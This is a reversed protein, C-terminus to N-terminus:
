AAVEERGPWGPHNRRRLIRVVGVAVFLLPIGVLDGWKLLGRTVSSQFVLEPPTRDKSRISILSEDQTLWDVANAVFVLNQPNNQVFDQRLFGADRVVVLRGPGKGSATGAGPNAGTPPGGDVVAAVVQVGQSGPAPRIDEQPAVSGGVPEIGGSATTQLLPSARTTDQIQLAGPWALSLGQLQRTILSKGAPGVVPWFPYNKVVSFVGQQGLNVRENSRLDYVVGELLKVGRGALYPGLGTSVPQTIPMRPSLRNSPLLLLGSGGADLYAELAHLASDGLTETPGALIVASLSDPSLVPAAASDTGLAVTNVDYRKSLEQELPGYSGPGRAGFGTLFAVHPKSKRTLGAIASTLHYELDATSQIVPITQHQGAYMVALGLWGRKVQFEDNRVVNFQIPRVGLSQAQDAEPGKDGPHVVQVHVHGDSASRYDALLDQVDRRTLDVESPLSSSVFFKITVVDDLGGLISRTGKSLTFLHNRTLDLRGHIHGGLLNLAVVGVVLAATGTRLRRFAGRGRSLRERAVAWYALALFVGAATVFYLVDRLDIVGRTVAEFHTLVSLDGVASALPGPLGIQTFRLGALILAFDIMAGVIFATIQNSTISSAFLGIAVLEGALLAVGVYQGVVIGPDASSAALIGLATPLTGALAVLVFMWDGLFKGVVLDLESMPQALLWGLTGSRREEALSRMTIAPVFVALLWPLLDFLPRLTAAGSTFISRFSLFLALVLFAVVLIYATPHDFYSRFERRAVRWTQRM